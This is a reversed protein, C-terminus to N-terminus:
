LAIPIPLIMALNPVLTHVMFMQGGKMYPNQDPVTLGTQSSANRSWFSLELWGPDTDDAMFAMTHSETGNTIVTDAWACKKTTPYPIGIYHWGGSGGTLGPLSIWAETDSIDAGRISLTHHVSGQAGVCAAIYGDGMLINPFTSYNNPFVAATQSVPNRWLLTDDVNIGEEEAEDVWGALPGAAYDRPNPNFPVVPSAIYTYKGYIQVTATVATVAYAVTALALLAIVAFFVISKKM